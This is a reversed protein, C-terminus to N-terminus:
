NAREEALRQAEIQRWRAVNANHEAVTAAFAHGGSGDAVFFIADSDAPHALAELTARGPNSIPTPPLGDIRYTNYGTNLEIESQRITRPQGQANVLRGDRCREPHQKCVGYIITPDSELRMPRRLRNIFASAVMPRESAVGTEREVISALTVFDEKTAIPLNPQRSAWIEELAEDRESQMLQLLAARTMGRHVSYTEPLISGEPPTDPMDGTLVDSEEIIRMAAAITIGEPFTIRHQLADGNAMMEVVQRLTAGAPILYEGAQLSQGRAYARTAVRFLLANRIQHERELNAGIGAASQGREVVFTTEAGSPGARNSEAIFAFAGVLVAAVAFIALSTVTSIFGWIGGGRSKQPRWQRAM